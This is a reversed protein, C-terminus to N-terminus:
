KQEMHMNNAPFSCSIHHSNQNYKYNKNEEKNKLDSCNLLDTNTNSAYKFDLVSDVSSLLSKLLKDKHGQLIATTNM